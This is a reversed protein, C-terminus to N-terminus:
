SQTLARGEFSLNNSPSADPPSVLEVSGPEHEERLRRERCGLYTDVIFYVGFISWLFVVQMARRLRTSPDKGALDAVQGPLYSGLGYGLLNYLLMSFANAFVQLDADVSSLVLGTVPPLMAAGFFLLVWINGVVFFLTRDDPTPTTVAAIIAAVAGISCWIVSLLATCEAGAVTSYGGLKDIIPGGAAVGLIPASASVVIFITNVKVRAQQFSVHFFKTTWYQVGTVIFFLCCLEITTSRFIRNSMLTKISAWLSLSSQKNLTSEDDTSLGSFDMLQSVNSNSAYAMGELVETSFRRRGDNGINNPAGPHSNRRSSLRSSPLSERHQSSTQPMSNSGRWESAGRSKGPSKPSAPVELTSINIWTSPVTAMFAFCFLLCFAQLRFAYQYYVGWATLYGTVGYGVMSGIAATGQTIGIWLTRQEEPGFRDVWVPVYVSIGSHSLGVLFKAMFLHNKEIVFAFIMTAISDLLIGAMFIKKESFKQLFPGVLPCGCCLGIYPLAGLIGQEAETLCPYHPDYDKNKDGFKHKCGRELDSLVASVGGSDFNLLLMTIIIGVFVVKIGAKPPPEGRSWEVGTLRVISPPRPPPDSAETLVERSDEM